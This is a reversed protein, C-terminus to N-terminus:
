KQGFEQEQLYQRFLQSKRWIGDSLRFFISGKKTFNPESQNDAPMNFKFYYCCAIEMIYINQKIPVEAHSCQLERHHGPLIYKSVKEKM